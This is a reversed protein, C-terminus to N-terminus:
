AVVQKDLAKNKKLAAVLVPLDRYGKIKRFRKEAEMLGLSAWREAMSGSHWRKKNDKFISIKSTRTLLEEDIANAIVERIAHHKEWDELIKEINLDFKKVSDIKLKKRRPNKSEM